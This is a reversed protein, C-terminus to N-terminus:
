EVHTTMSEQTVDPHAECTGFGECTEQVNAVVPAANTTTAVGVARTNYADGSAHAKNRDVKDSSAVAVNNANVSSCCTNAVQQDSNEIIM